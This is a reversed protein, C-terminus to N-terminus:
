SGSPNDPNYRDGTLAQFVANVIIGAAFAIILGTIAITIIKRGKSFQESSGASTLIVFGGWVVMLTALIPVITLTLFRIFNNLFLYLADTGCGGGRWQGDIREPPFPPLEPFCCSNSAAYEAAWIRYDDDNVVGDNNRDIETYDGPQETCLPLLDGGQPGAGQAGAINTFVILLLIMGKAITASQLIIRNKM